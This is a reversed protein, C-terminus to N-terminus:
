CFELTNLNEHFEDIDSDVFGIIAMHQSQMIVQSFLYSAILTKFGLKLDIDKNELDIM